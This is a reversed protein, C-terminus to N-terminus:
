FIRIVEADDDITKMNAPTINIIGPKSNLDFTGLDDWGFYQAGNKTAYVLLESISIKPFAKHLIKIEELVSLTDNSSLSDTGITIQCNQSALLNLDPLTNEIYLNAKPCLCFWIRHLINKNKLFEIDSLNTFTNHVLLIESASPFYQSISKISNEGGPNFWSMDIGKQSFMQYLKGTANLFMENESESEQNHICWKSPALNHFNRIIEFLEPSLSYPAHPVLSANKHSSKAQNLLQIGNELIKEADAALMSFIEVFSHYRIKSKNKTSFTSDNNCIDGVAQIGNEWMYNDAIEIFPNNNSFDTKRTSVFDNIFGDLSRNRAIKNKFHSLELHCHTNIFGPALIGHFHEADDLTSSVLDLITGDNATVLTHNNLLKGAASLIFDASLKRM